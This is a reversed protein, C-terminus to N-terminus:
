KPGCALWNLIRTRESSSLPTDQPMRGTSIQSSISAQQASVSALTFPLHCRDCHSAFFSQGYSAWTDNCSPVGADTTSEDVGCGLGLLILVLARRM